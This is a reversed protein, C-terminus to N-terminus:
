ASQGKVYYARHKESMRATDMLLCVDITNFEHDIYAGEGVYGGFRLYARILPPIQRLADLRNIQEAPLIDMPQARNPQATVRLDEPALHNHHLFSLAASIPGVDQGPFSAVGFLIEIDRSLVYEALGNWLLHMAVGGRHEADVCSRGLEVAKRGSRTIKSLDYESAGYFGPGNVAVESRLLRYVGVVNEQPDPNFNDQLILHDFHPDFADRELKLAASSPDINAGMEEVFVRYRLRQAALLETETQALKLAYQKQNTIM